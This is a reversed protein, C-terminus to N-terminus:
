RLNEPNLGELEPLTFRGDKRILVDDFWIEGGGYEPTQISVLDWHIASRNGNFATAYANGPTLHFSGTIKEDFLIDGIPHHIHPNLGLAFEGIYRSGEDTDLAKNLEATHNSTAKIIKGQSFELRINEHVVGQFVSPANFTIYGEVSNRVPASFVEGCPINRLGCSKMTPIGKISFTIDTAPGKIHVKDTRDYLAVLPDQAVAMKAYDMCCVKFYYDEFGDTSMKSQQAMAPSPWRLVCWKTKKIRIDTHVAKNWEAQYLALAEAPLDSWESINYQGRIGIYADMDEMLAAEFRGMRAIQEKDAGTLFSRLLNHDKVWIYPKGGAAYAESILAKALPHGQDHVEILVNEGPQLRVSYNILQKALAEVRTDM